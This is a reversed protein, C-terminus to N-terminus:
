GKEYKWNRRKGETLWELASALRTARTEARKATAIWEVYERQQGPPFAEFTARAKKNKALGAELEPPMPIAVNPRTKERVANIGEENLRMAKKIHKVLQAKTPLDRRTTVRGFSGMAKHENPLAEEFVLSHKWFGFTCHEKFSAMWCLIGHYGFSPMGWKISEEVDPCAGHVIERLERLIPQAFDAAKDIYADFRDDRSGM